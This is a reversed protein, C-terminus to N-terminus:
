MFVLIEFLQQISRFGSWDENELMARLARDTGLDVLLERVKDFRGAFKVTSQNEDDFIAAQRVCNRFSQVYPVLRGLRDDNFVAPCGPM